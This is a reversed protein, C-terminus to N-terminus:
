RRAVVVTAELRGYRVPLERDVPVSLLEPRTTLAVVTTWTGARLRESLGRYLEHLDADTRRGFPLNTVVRDTEVALDTADGQRVDVATEVGAAAVNERADAVRDPDVEVGEISAGDPLRDGGHPTSRPLDALPDLRDDAYSRGPSPPRDLAALAAEVPITASGCMPDLLDDGPEFEALHVLAWAITPRLPADHERVRYPRRHLSREGTADVALIFSADRVFARFVVDPDDLDVPPREGATACADVVAQGVREAVDPSGFDHEGHRTARVAISQGPAVWREVGASRALDYTDQADIGPVDRDRLVVLVRHLSRARRNLRPVATPAAAFAIAGRYRREADAGILAEVEESAVSELGPNTTALLDVRGSHDPVAQAQPDGDSM